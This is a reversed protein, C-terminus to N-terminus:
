PVHFRRPGPILGMDGGSAPLNKVGPGGSSDRSLEKDATWGTSQLINLLM